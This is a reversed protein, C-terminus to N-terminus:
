VRLCLAGPRLAVSAQRVPLHEVFSGGCQAPQVPRVFLVPRADLSPTPVSKATPAPLLSVHLSAEEASPTVCDSCDDPAACAQGAHECAVAPEDCHCRDAALAGVTMLLLVALVAFWQSRVKPV